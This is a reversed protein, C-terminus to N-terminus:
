RVRLALMRDIQRPICVEIRRPVCAELFAVHAPAHGSAFFCPVFREDPEPAETANDNKAYDENGPEPRKTGRFILHLPERTLVAELEAATADCDAFAGKM